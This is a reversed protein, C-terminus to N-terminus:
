ETWNLDAGNFETWVLQFWNFEALNYEIWNLDIPQTSPDFPVRNFHHSNTQNSSLDAWNLHAWNFKILEIGNIASILEVIVVAVVCM